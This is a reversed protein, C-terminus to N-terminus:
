YVTYYVTFNFKPMGAIGAPSAIGSEETRRTFPFWREQGYMVSPYGDVPISLNVKRFDRLDVSVHLYDGPTISVLGESYAM